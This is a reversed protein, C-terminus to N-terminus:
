AIDAKNSEGQATLTDLREHLAAIVVAAVKDLLNVNEENDLELLDLRITQDVQMIKCPDGHAKNILSTVTLNTKRPDFSFYVAPLYFGNYGAVVKQIAKALDTLEGLNIEEFNTTTKM